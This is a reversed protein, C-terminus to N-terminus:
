GGSKLAAKLRKQLSGEQESAKSDLTRGRTREPSSTVDSRMSSGRSRSMLTPSQLKEAAPEELRMFSPKEDPGDM